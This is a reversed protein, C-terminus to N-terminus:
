KNNKLRKTEGIEINKEFGDTSLLENKVTM